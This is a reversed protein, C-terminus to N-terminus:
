RYEVAHCPRSLAVATLIGDACLVGEKFFGQSNSVAQKWRCAPQPNAESSRVALAHIAHGVAEFPSCCECSPSAPHGHHPAAM